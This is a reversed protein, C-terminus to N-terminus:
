APGGASLAVYIAVAIAVIVGLTLGNRMRRKM